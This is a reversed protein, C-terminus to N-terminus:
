ISQPKNKHAGYAAGPTIESEGWFDEDDDFEHAKFSPGPGSAKKMKEASKKESKDLKVV